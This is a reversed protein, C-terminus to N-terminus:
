RSSVPCLGWQTKGEAGGKRLGEADLSPVAPFHILPEGTRLGGLSGVAGFSLGGGVWGCQGWGMEAGQVSGEREQRLATCGWHRQRCREERGWQGM